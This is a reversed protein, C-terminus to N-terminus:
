GSNSTRSYHLPMRAWGSPIRTVLVCAVVGTEDGRKSCAVKDGKVIDQVSKTSGDAMQITNTGLFCGGGGCSHGGMSGGGMSGGSYSWGGTSRISAPRDQATTPAPVPPPKPNGHCTTTDIIQSNGGGSQMPPVQPGPIGNKNRQNSTFLGDHINDNDLKPPVKKGRDTSYDPQLSEVLNM